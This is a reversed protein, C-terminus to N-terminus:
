HETLLALLLKLISAVYSAWFLLYWCSLTMKNSLETLEGDELFRVFSKQGITWLHLFHLSMGYSVKPLVASISFRFTQQNKANEIEPKGGSTVKSIHICMKCRHVVPWFFFKTLNIYKTLHYILLIIRYFTWFNSRKAEYMALVHIRFVGENNHKYYIRTAQSHPHHVM